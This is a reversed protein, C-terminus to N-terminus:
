EIKISEVQIKAHERSEEVVTEGKEIDIKVKEYIRKQTSQITEDFEMVERKWKDQFDNELFSFFGSGEIQFFAAFSFLIQAAVMFSIVLRIYKEYTKAIGLHLLTQSIIM